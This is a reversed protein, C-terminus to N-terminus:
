IGLPYIKKVVFGFEVLEGINDELVKCAVCKVIETPCGDGYREKSRQCWKGSGTHLLKRYAQFASNTLSAARLQATAPNNPSTITRAVSKSVSHVILVDMHVHSFCNTRRKRQCVEQKALRMELAMQVRDFWWRQLNRWPLNTLEPDHKASTQNSININDVDDTVM